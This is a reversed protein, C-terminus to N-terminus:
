KNIFKSKLVLLFTLKNKNIKQKNKNLKTLKRKIQRGLRIIEQNIIYKKRLKKIINDKTPTNEQVVM